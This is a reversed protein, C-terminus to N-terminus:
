GPPWTMARGGLVHLHAHFIIQGAGAGTNFVSRYNGDLGAEDAVRDALRFVDALEAASAGALEAATAVHRRPIVLLHTPAQPNIDRFALSHETEGVVETDLEGSVFKCFLCSPDLGDSGTGTADHPTPM